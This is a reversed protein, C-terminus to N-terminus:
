SANYQQGQLHKNTVENSLRSAKRLGFSLVSLLGAISILGWSPLNLVVLATGAVLLLTISILEFLLPKDNMTKRRPLPADSSNTM